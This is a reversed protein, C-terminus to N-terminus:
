TIGHVRRFSREVFNFISAKAAPDFSGITLGRGMLRYSEYYEPKVLSLTGICRMKERLNFGETIENIVKIFDKLDKPPIGTLFTLVNGKGDPNITQIFNAILPYNEIPINTEALLLAYYPIDRVPLNLSKVFKKFTDWNEKKIQAFASYLFAGSFEIETLNFYQMSSKVESSIAEYNEPSTLSLGYIYVLFHRESYKGKSKRIESLYASYDAEAVNVANCLGNEGPFGKKKIIDDLVSYFERFRDLDRKYIKKIAKMQTVVSDSDVNKRFEKFINVFLTYDASSIDEWENLFKFLNDPEIYENGLISKVHDILRQNMLNEPLDLCLNRFRNFNFTRVNDLFQESFQKISLFKSSALIRSADGPAKVDDMYVDHRFNDDDDFYFEQDKASKQEGRFTELNKYSDRKSLPADTAKLNMGCLVVASLCIIRKM